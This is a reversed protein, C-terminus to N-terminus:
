GKSTNLFVFVKQCQNKELGKSGVVMDGPITRNSADAVEKTDTKARTYDQKTIIMKPKRRAPLEDM